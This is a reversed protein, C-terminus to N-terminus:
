LHHFLLKMKHRLVRMLALIFAGPLSFQTCCVFCEFVSVMFELKAIHLVLVGAGNGQLETGNCYSM